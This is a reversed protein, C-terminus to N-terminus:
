LLRRGKQNFGLDLMFYVGLARQPPTYSDKRDSGVPLEKGYLLEYQKELKDFVDDPVLSISHCYYAYQLARLYDLDFNSHRQRPSSLRPSSKRPPNVFM